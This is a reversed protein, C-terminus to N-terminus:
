AMARSLYFGSASKWDWAGGYQCDYGEIAGLLKEDLVLRLLKHSGVFRRNMGVALVVKRQEAAESCARADSANTALPKECLVHVGASVIELTTPAHLHNPLANIVADVQPFLIRLDDGVKCELGSADALAKARWVDADILATVRLGEHALAAPIHELKTIAGCGLIGLRLKDQSVNPETHKCVALRGPNTLQNMAPPYDIRMSWM